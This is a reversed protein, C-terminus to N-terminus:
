REDWDGLYSKLESRARNLRSKVTGVPIKLTDAIEALSYDEMYFLIVCVKEKEGLRAIAQYLDIYEEKIYNGLYTKDETIADDYSQFRKRKRLITYCENIVIRVLWTKFYRAERLKNRQDYAKLIAEQVADACDQENHLLSFSIHFLTPEAELTLRLFEERDM